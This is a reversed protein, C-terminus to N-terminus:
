VMRSAVLLSVHSYLTHPLSNSVDAWEACLLQDSPFFIVSATFVNATYGKSPKRNQQSVNRLIDVTGCLALPLPLVHMGALFDPILKQTRHLIHVFSPRWHTRFELTFTDPHDSTLADFTCKSPCDDCGLLLHM